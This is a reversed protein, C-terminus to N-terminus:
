GVMSTLGSTDVDMGERVKYDGLFPIANYRGQRYSNYVSEGKTTEYELLPIINSSQDSSKVVFHVQDRRFLHRGPSRRTSIPAVGDLLSLCHSTFVLQSGPTSPSCCYFRSMMFELLDPHLSNELEDIVITVPKTLSTFILGSLQLIKRTGQSEDMLGLTTETNGIRHVFEPKPFNVVVPKSETMMPIPVNRIRLDSISIDASELFKMLEKKYEPSTSYQVILRENPVELENLVILGDSFWKGLPELDQNNLSVAVSLLLADPRTAKEYVARQGKFSSGFHYSYRGSERDLERAFLLAPQSSRYRELREEIIQKRNLSFGYDYVANGLQVQIRFSTPKGERLENMFPALAFGKPLRALPSGIVINRMLQLAKILNSKGSANAGFVVATRVISPIFKAQHAYVNSDIASKDKDYASLDLVQESDFSKFNNVYFRILM